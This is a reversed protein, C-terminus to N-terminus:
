RGHIFLLFPLSNLIHVLSEDVLHLDAELFIRGDQFCMGGLNRFGCVYVCNMNWFQTGQM